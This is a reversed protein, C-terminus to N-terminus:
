MKVIVAAVDVATSNKDKLVALDEPDLSQAADAAKRFLTPDSYEYRLNKVFTKFEAGNTFGADLVALFDDFLPRVMSKVSSCATALSKIAKYTYSRCLLRLNEPTYNLYPTEYFFAGTKAVEEVTFGKELGQIASFLYLSPRAQVDVLKEIDFSAAYVRDVVAYYGQTIEITRSIRHLWRDVTADDQDKTLTLFDSLKGSFDKLSRQRNDLDFRDELARSARYGSYQTSDIQHIWTPYVLEIAAFFAEANGANVSAQFEGLRSIIKMEESSFLRHKSQTSTKQEPPFVTDAVAKITSWTKM